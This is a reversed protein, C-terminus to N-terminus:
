NIIIKSRINTMINKTDLFYTTLFIINLINYSLVCHQLKPFDILLSFLLCFSLHFTYGMICYMRHNIHDTEFHMLDCAAFVCHILTLFQM